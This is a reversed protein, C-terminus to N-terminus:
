IAAMTRKEGERTPYYGVLMGHSAVVIGRDGVISDFRLMGFVLGLPSWQCVFGLFPDDGGKRPYDWGHNLGDKKSNLELIESRDLVVVLNDFSGACNYDVAPSFIMVM